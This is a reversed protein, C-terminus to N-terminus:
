RSVRMFLLAKNKKISYEGGLTLKGFALGLPSWKVALNHQASSDVNQQANGTVVITFFVTILLLARITNSKM